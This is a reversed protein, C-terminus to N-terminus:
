LLDKGLTGDSVLPLVKDVQPQQADRDGCGNVQDQMRFGPLEKRDHHGNWQHEAHEHHDRDAASVHRGHDRQQVGIGPQGSRGHSEHKLVLEQDDGARQVTRRSENKRDNHRLRHVTREGVDQETGEALHLGCGRASLFGPRHVASCGLLGSRNESGGVFYDDDGTVTHRHRLRLVFDAFEIVDQGFLSDFNAESDMRDGSAHGAM